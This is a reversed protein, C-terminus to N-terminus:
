CQDTEHEERKCPQYKQVTNVKCPKAPSVLRPPAASTKRLQRQYSSYRLAYIYIHTYAKAVRGRKKKLKQFSLKHQSAFKGHDNNSSIRTHCVYSELNEQATKTCAGNKAHLHAPAKGPQHQRITYARRPAGAVELPLLLWRSWCHSGPLASRFAPWPVGHPDVM